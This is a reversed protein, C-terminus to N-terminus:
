LFKALEIHNNIISTILFINENKEFFIFWITRSNSKYFIYKSGLHFLTLPTSKIPFTAINHEVFDIINDKYNIANEIYSFYDEKFLIYILDNLYLEVEAKYFIKVEEM